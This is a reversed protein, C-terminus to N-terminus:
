INKMLKLTKIKEKKSDILLSNLKDGIHINNTLGGNYKILEKVNKIKQEIAESKYKMQDYEILRDNLLSKKDKKKNLNLLENNSFSNNLLLTSKYSKINPNKINFKNLPSTIKNYSFVMKLNRQNNISTNNKLSSINNNNSSENINKLDYSYDKKIDFLKKEKTKKIRNEMEKVLRMSKEPIFVKNESYIKREQYGLIKKLKKNELNEKEKKEEDIRYKDFQSKFSALMKSRNLWMERMSKIKEFSELEYVLKKRKLLKNFEKFNYNNYNNSFKKHRESMIDLKYKNEEEEYKEKIKNFFYENKDKNLSGKINIASDYKKFELKRKECIEMEKIKMNQILQNKKDIKDEEIKDLYEDKKMKSKNLDDLKKQRLIKSEKVLNKLKSEFTDKKTELKELYKIINKKRNVGKNNEKEIILEIQNQLESFKEKIINEKNKLKNINYKRINNEVKLNPINQYSENLYLDGNNQISNLKNQLYIKTKNLSNILKKTKIELDNVKKKNLNM